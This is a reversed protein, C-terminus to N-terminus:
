IWAGRGTVARCEFSLGGSVIINHQKIIGAALAMAGAEGGERADWWANGTISRKGISKHSRGRRLSRSRVSKTRQVPSRHGPHVGVSYMSSVSAEPVLDLQARSGGLSWQGMSNYNSTCISYQGSTDRGGRPTLGVGSVDSVMSRASM